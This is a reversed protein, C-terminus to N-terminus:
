PPWSQLFQINKKWSLDADRLDDRGELPDPNGDPLVLGVLEKFPLFQKMQNNFKQKLLIHEFSIQDLPM